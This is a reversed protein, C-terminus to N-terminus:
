SDLLDRISKHLMLQSYPKNLLDEPTHQYSNNIVVKSTDGSTLLIKLHPYLKHAREALEYGNMDPMVIDSFLLKIDPNHKLIELASKANDTTLIQYGSDSLSEEALELLQIEDDVLLLTEKGTINESLATEPSPETLKNGTHRPLYLKFTTGTGMESEATILGRSRNVFGHVMSLGLGTGKGQEKTTFFPEFIHKLAQENIGSGTDSIDIEIYDGSKLGKHNEIYTNFTSITLIGEGQMADRANIALNLLSNEFDSPNIETMWADKVPLFIVKIMPTLSQDILSLLKNISSNINIVQTNTEEIRSYTLLNKTLDIARQTAHTISDFRKRLKDTFNIDDEMLEINGLIIALINNFDHAIGGTLQGVAKMKTSQTLAEEAIKQQSIDSHTGIFRSPKGQSNVEVIKGRGRIWMYHNNKCLFRFNVDFINIEGSTYQLISNMVKEIDYKHVRKNWEEFTQPFERVQYGAMTYYRDDFLVENTEMNWDWIGDNAVSMALDLRNESQILKQEVLLRNTIDIVVSYIFEGEDTHILCPFIEVDRLEGSALKHQTTFSNIEKNKVKNILTKVQDKPTTNLDFILLNSLTDSDYGYFKVAANNTEVLKGSAPDIIIKILSNDEFIQHYRTKSNILEQNKYKLESEVFERDEHMLVILWAAVLSILSLIYFLNIYTNKIIQLSAADLDIARVTYTTLLIFGILGLLGIFTLAFSIIRHTSNSQLYSSFFDDLRSSIKKSLKFETAPKCEDHCRSELSCCLSCINTDYMTCSAMDIAHYQIGCVGCKHLKTKDLILSERAIYYKGKTIFAIFPSLIFALVLAVISSFAQLEYGFFGAFCLIASVSAILTSFVGVPNINFLHARKFEIVPPSLGLPKNIVLDAVIASIWAIAITSYLGLIKELVDFVGMEMLLLAISINFILWVVRGPHAHTIRSFFNSWALSGAYANTVNIKIQSIIVFILSITLATSPNDFVYTYATNYMHIPERIEFDSAGAIILLAALLIGGIQKLFGIIIWGPGALIVSAWWKIRNNSTKDPMFRLYDVQEGIQAILALSIGMSFGFYYTSFESSNSINGTFEFFHTLLEPEKNLVVIFPLVMLVFWVPQTLFQLRSIASMGYFVIPIIIISCLAYGIALPLGTYLYIAQAMIAAELAFFIFCFTAYILSTITSGFYGFGAARTLLDIDINNKAAQYCIPLGMLFIIISASLIGWFANQFGYSIAISAGIAELALFSTNGFATNAVMFESWKRHSAPTYRLAYDEISETAVYQNYERRTVGVSTNKDTM